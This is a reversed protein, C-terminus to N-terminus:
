STAIKKLIESLKDSDQSLVPKNNALNIANDDANIFILPVIREIDAMQTDPQKLPTLLERLLQKNKLWKIKYSTYKNNMGGFVWKFGDKDTEVPIFNDKVLLDYLLQRQKDDKLNTKLQALRGQGEGNEDNLKEEAEDILWLATEYTRNTMKICKLRPDDVDCNDEFALLKEYLWYFDESNLMRRAVRFDSVDNVTMLRVRLKEVLKQLNKSRVLMKDWHEKDEVFNRNEDIDGYRDYVEFNCNLCDDFFNSFDSQIKVLLKFLKNEM